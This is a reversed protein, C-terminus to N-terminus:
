RPLLRLTLTASIWLVAGVALGLVAALGGYALVYPAAHTPATVIGPLLLLVAGALGCAAGELIGLAGYSGTELWRRAHVFTRWGAAMAFPALGLIYAGIFHARRAWVAVRHPDVGYVHTSGNTYAPAVLAIAGVLAVPLLYVTLANVFAVLTAPRDHPRTIDGGDGTM